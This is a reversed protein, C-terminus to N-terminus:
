RLPRLFRSGAFVWDALASAWELVVGIGIVPNSCETGRLAVSVDLPEFARSISSALHRDVAMM